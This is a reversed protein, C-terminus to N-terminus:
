IKNESQKIVRAPNGAVVSYAPVDKTVVTNAAIVAGDGIVVGGLITAKDGIWVNDGIIVSGKSIVKRKLPPIQLDEYSTTGHNNDSITVWKGTLCNDGIIIQNTATIHNFAGFNCHNGISILVPNNNDSFQSWATLYLNDGFSNREGLYIRHTDKLYVNGWFICTEVPSIFSRSLWKSRLIAIRERWRISDNYSYIRREIFYIISIVFKKLM